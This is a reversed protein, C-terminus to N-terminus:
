LGDLNSAAVAAAYGLGALPVGKAPKKRAFFLALVRGHERRVKKAMTVM